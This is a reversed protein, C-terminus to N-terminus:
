RERKRKVDKWERGRGRESEQYGRGEKVSVPAHVSRYKRNQSRLVDWM